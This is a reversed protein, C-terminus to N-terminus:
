RDLLVGGLIRTIVVADVIAVRMKNLKIVRPWRRSGRAVEATVERRFVPRIGGIGICIEIKVMVHFVENIEHEMKEVEDGHEGSVLEEGFALENCVRIRYHLLGMGLVRSFDM